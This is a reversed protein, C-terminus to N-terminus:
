HKFEVAVRQLFCDLNEGLSGALIVHSVADSAMHLALTLSLIGREEDMSGTMEDCFSHPQDPM